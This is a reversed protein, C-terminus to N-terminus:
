CWNDLKPSYPILPPYLQLRLRLVPFCSWSVVYFYCVLKSTPGKKIAHCFIERRKARVSRRSLSRIVRVFYDLTKPINHCDIYISSILPSLSTQQYKSSPVTKFYVFDNQPYQHFYFTLTHM